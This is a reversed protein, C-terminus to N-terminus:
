VGDGKIYTSVDDGEICTLVDDGKICTLVDDGKVCTLVDDGKRPQYVFLPTYLKSLELLFCSAPGNFTVYTAGIGPCQIYNNYHHLLFLFM